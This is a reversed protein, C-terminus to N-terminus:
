SPPSTSCGQGIFLYSMMFLGSTCLIVRRRRPLVRGRGCTVHLFFETFIPRTSGFIHDSVSLCVCVSLCVREDCYEARREPASYNRLYDNSHHPFHVTCQSPAMIVLRMAYVRCLKSSCSCADSKAHRHNQRHQVCQLCAFTAWVRLTGSSIM